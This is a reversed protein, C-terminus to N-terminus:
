FSATCSFGKQFGEREGKATATWSGEKELGKAEIAAELTSELNDERNCGTARLILLGAERDCSVDNRLDAEWDDALRKERIELYIRM